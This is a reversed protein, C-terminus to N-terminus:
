YLLELNVVKVSPPRGYKAEHFMPHLIDHMQMCWPLRRPRNHIKEKFAGSRGLQIEIPHEFLSCIGVAFDDTPHLFPCVSADCKQNM